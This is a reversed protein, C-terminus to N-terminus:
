SINLNLFEYMDMSARDLISNPTDVDWVRRSFSYPQLHALAHAVKNGARKEFSWSCFSFSAALSLIDQILFGIFTDQVKSSKLLNILSLCDGEVILNAIGAEKAYRLGLLCACGEEILPGSFNPGQEVGVATIDGLHTRIVFGHGWGIEGLRGGDFNLKYFGVSPPSWSSPMPPGPIHDGDQAACFQPCFLHSKSQSHEFAYRSVRVSLPKQFELNGM